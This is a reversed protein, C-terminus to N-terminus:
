FSVKEEYTVANLQLSCSKEPYLTEKDHVYSRGDM